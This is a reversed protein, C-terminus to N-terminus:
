NQGGPRGPRENQLGPPTQGPPGGGVEGRFLNQLIQEAPLGQQLQRGLGETVASAPMQGRRQAMNMAGPLRQFDDASFGSELARLVIRATETPSQAAEPLDSLVNIAAMIGGPQAREMVSSEAAQQLTQDLIDADFGQMLSKSSAKIMGNRFAEQNMREGSREMMSGVEPRAAWRDVMEAARESHQRIQNLAHEIQGMQVRKSLGEFAKDFIMDHPLNKEAMEIAPIMVTAIQEDSLGRAGARTMLDDLKSQEIGASRAQEILESLPQAQVASTLLVTTFLLLTLLPKMLRYTINQNKM